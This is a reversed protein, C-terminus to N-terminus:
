AAVPDFFDLGGFRAFGRDATALRCGHSVALAALHADPVLNAKIGRDDAVLRALVAWTAPTSAVTRGRQAGRLRDVFALAEATPAPDAFIRPSTVIRVFGTLCHDVLALEDRGGALDTIWAAYADHDEAERRYSYVLVNVDPLIV